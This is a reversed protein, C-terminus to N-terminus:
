RGDGTTPAQESLPLGLAAVLREVPDVPADRDHLAIGVVGHLWAPTEVPELYVPILRRQRDGFDLVRSILSEEECAGSHLYRRSLLALTFRSERICREMETLFHANPAFDRGDIAVAYGRQELLAALERAVTADPPGHRYSLFVDYRLPRDPSPGADRPAPPGAGTGRSPVARPAPLALSPAAAVAAVIGVAAVAFCPWWAVHTAILLLRCRAVSAPTWVAEVAGAADFLLADNTADPNARRYAAAVPTLETGILVPTGAYRATCHTGTRAHALAMAAGLTVAAVALAIGAARRRRGGALAAVALAAAVGAVVIALIRTLRQDDQPLAAPLPLLSAGAAATAAATAAFVLRRRVPTQAQLPQARVASRADDAM